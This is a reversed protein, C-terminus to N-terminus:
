KNAQSRCVSYRQREDPFELRMKSDSMCRQIFVSKREGTRRTALPM